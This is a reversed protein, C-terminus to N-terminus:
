GLRFPLFSPSLFVVVVVFFWGFHFLENSHCGFPPDHVNSVRRSVAESREVGGSGRVVRVGEMGSDGTRKKEKKVRKIKSQLDKHKACVCILLNKKGELEWFGRWHCVSALVWARSRVWRLKVKLQKVGVEFTLMVIMILRRRHRWISEERRRKSFWIM